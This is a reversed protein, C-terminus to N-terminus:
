FMINLEDVVYVVFLSGARVQKRNEPACLTSVFPPECVLPNSEDLM